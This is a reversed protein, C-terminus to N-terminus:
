EEILLNDDHKEFGHQSQDGSHEDGGADQQPDVDM